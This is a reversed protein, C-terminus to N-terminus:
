IMAKRVRCSFTGHAICCHWSLAKGHKLLMVSACIVNSWVSRIYYNAVFLEGPISPFISRQDGFLFIWGVRGSRKRGASRAFSIDGMVQWRFMAFSVNQLVKKDLM